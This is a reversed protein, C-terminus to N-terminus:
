CPRPAGPGDGVRGGAEDPAEDGAAQGGARALAHELVQELAAWRDGAGQGVPDVSLVREDANTGMEIRVVVHEPPLLPQVADGWEVITVRDGDVLEEFGVDHLEQIRGLRYVDVHAVPVRGSYEQVLTFSPSTVPVEVGLGRALGQAFTTKGTGLDGVLAVVDGVDFAAGVEAALRRTAHASETRFEYRV